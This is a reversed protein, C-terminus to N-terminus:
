FLQRYLKAYEEIKNQWDSKAALELSRQKMEEKMGPASLITVIARAFGATDDEAVLIGNGGDEAADDIGCGKTGVVPLGFAAAELFVIGFGEVDHGENQSFLCFLEANRYVTYLMERTDITDLFVVREGLGLDGAIGELRKQYTKNLAKGVIVYRMDPHTRLVEAFARISPEYGKRKRLAGVGLIYPKLSALHSNLEPDPPKGQLEEADIGPNIVDISLAPIKKLIEHKVFQSIALIKDARYLVIRALFNQLPHYLPLISGTGIANLVIRKRFGLSALLAIIGYPYVDHAHLVDCSWVLARVVGLTRLLRWRNPYLIAQEGPFNSPVTTIPIVEAGLSERLGLLVHRAFVGGGNDEGLNHALFAIRM